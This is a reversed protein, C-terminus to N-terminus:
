TDRGTGALGVRPLDLAARVPKLTGAPDAVALADLNRLQDMVIGPAASIARADRYAEAAARALAADRCLALGALALAKAYASRYARATGALQADAERITM